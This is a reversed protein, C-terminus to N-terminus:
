SFSGHILADWASKSQLTQIFKAKPTGNGGSSRSIMVVPVEGGTPVHGQAFIPVPQHVVVGDGGDAGSSPVSSPVESRPSPAGSGMFPLAEVSANSSAPSSLDDDHLHTESLGLRSPHHQHHQHHHSYLHAFHHESSSRGSGASIPASHPPPPPTPVSSPTHCFSASHSAPTASGSSSRSMAPRKPALISGLALRLADRHQQANRNGVHNDSMHSMPERPLSEARSPREVRTPM